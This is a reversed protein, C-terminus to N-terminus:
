MSITTDDHRQCPPNPDASGLPICQPNCKVHLGLIIVDRLAIVLLVAKYSAETKCPLQRVLGVQRPLAIHFHPSVLKVAM